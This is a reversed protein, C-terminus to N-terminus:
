HHENQRAFELTRATKAREERSRTSSSSAAHVPTWTAPETQISPAAGPHAVQAQQVAQYSAHSTRTSRSTHAAHASHTARKESYRACSSRSHTSCPPNRRTDPLSRENTPPHSIITASSISKTASAASTVSAASTASMAPPSVLAPHSAVAPAAPLAADGAMSTLNINPASLGDIMTKGIAGLMVAASCVTFLMMRRSRVTALRSMRTAVWRASGPM